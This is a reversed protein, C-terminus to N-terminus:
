LYDEDNNDRNFKNIEEWEKNGEKIKKIRADTEESIGKKFKGNKFIIRPLIPTIIQWNPM